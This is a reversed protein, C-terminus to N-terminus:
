RLRHWPSRGPIRHRRLKGCGRHAASYLRNVAVAVPARLHEAGRGIIEGNAVDFDFLALGEGGRVDVRRSSDRQQAFCHDVVQEVAFVRHALDNPDLGYRKGHDPRQHGLALRWAALILVVHDEHRDAGRLLPHNADALGIVRGDAGDHHLGLLAPGLVRLILHGTQQSLSVMELPVFIVVERNAVHFLNKSRLLVRRADHRDQQGRNGGDRQNHACDADHVDGSM